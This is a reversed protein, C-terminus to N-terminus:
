FIEVAVDPVAGIRMFASSFSRHPLQNMTDRARNGVPSNCITVERICLGRFSKVVFQGPKTQILVSRKIRRDPEVNAQVM